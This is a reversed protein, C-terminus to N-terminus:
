RPRTLSEHLERPPELDVSNGALTSHAGHEARAVCHRPTWDRQFDDLPRERVGAELALRREESAQGLLGAIQADDAVDGVALEVASPHIKCHLPEVALREISPEAGAGEGDFLRERDAAPERSREAGRVADADDVPVHLRAVDDQAPRVRGVGHEDVEADGTRRDGGV